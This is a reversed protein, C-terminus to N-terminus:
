ASLERAVAVSKALQGIKRVAESTRDDVISANLRLCNRFSGGLSFMPGPSFTVGEARSREYLKMADVGKPLAVWLVMGGLPRSSTTGEPFSEDVLERLRASNERYVGRAGRLTRDYSGNQLFAAIGLAAPKSTVISTVLKTHRARGILEGRGALWGIRFGPAITKSFSAALLALEPDAYASISTPRSSRFYLEGYMDDEILTVGYKSFLEAAARKHEDPMLAGMPNTFNGILLAAKISKETRSQSYGSLVHELAVLDVGDFPRSPVEVARLGLHSLLQYFLYFAPSELVVTDGPDCVTTLAIFVAELCGATIIIDDVGSTVGGRFLRKVIEQRLELPGDPLEYDVAREPDRRMMRATLEIIQRTPLLKPNPEATSLSVWGPHAADTVIMRTIRDTTVEQAKPDCFVDPYEMCEEMCLPPGLRVFHGSQSVAEAVGRSELLRYSERITNISVGLERSLERISPLRDGPEYVGEDILSQIRDAIAEYKPLGTMPDVTDRWQTRIYGMFAM